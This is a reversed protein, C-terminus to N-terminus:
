ITTSLVLAQKSQFDGSPKEKARPYHYQLLVHALIFIRSQICYSLLIFHAISFFFFYPFFFFFIVIKM